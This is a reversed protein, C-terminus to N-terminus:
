YYGEIWTFCEDCYVHELDPLSHKHNSNLPKGQAVMTKLDNQIRTFGEHERLFLPINSVFDYQPSGDRSSDLIVDEISNMDEIVITPILKGQKQFKNRTMRLLIQGSRKNKFDM